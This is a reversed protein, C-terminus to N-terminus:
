AFPASAWRSDSLGSEFQNLGDLVVVIRGERAASGLLDLWTERLKAPDDPIEARLKGAGERLEHLLNRLLSYVDTSGESQGIFRFHVSLGDQTRVKSRYRDIWNALLTTKGAGGGATLAFLRDPSLKSTNTSLTSIM